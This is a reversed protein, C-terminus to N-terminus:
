ERMILTSRYDFIPPALNFMHIQRWLQALLWRGGAGSVDIVLKRMGPAGRPPVAGRRGKERRSDAGGVGGGEEKAEGDHPRAQVEDLAAAASRLVAWAIEFEEPDRSAKMPPPHSAASAAMTSDCSALEGSGAAPLSLAAPREQAESLAVRVAAAIRHLENFEGCHSLQLAFERLAAPAAGSATTKPPAAEGAGGRPATFPNALSLSDELVVDNSETAPAAGVGPEGAATSTLRALAFLSEGVALSWLLAVLETGEMAGVRRAASCWSGDTEQAPGIASRITELLLRIMQLCARQAEKGGLRLVRPSSLHALSSVLEVAVHENLVRRRLCVSSALTNQTFATQLTCLVEVASSYLPRFWRPSAPSLVYCMALVLLNGYTHVCLTDLGKGGDCSGERDDGAAIRISQPLMPMAARLVRMFQRVETATAGAALSPLPTALTELFSPQRLLILLCLLSLQGEGFRSASVGSSVLLSHLLAMFSHPRRALIDLALSSQQVAWLLLHLVLPACPIKVMAADGASATLPNELLTLMGEVLARAYCSPDLEDSRSQAPLLISSDQSTAKAGDVPVHPEADGLAAKLLSFFVNSAREEPPGQLQPDCCPLTPGSYVGMALIALAHGLVAVQTASFRSGRSFVATLRPTLLSKKAYFRVAYLLAACLLAALPQKEGNFLENSMLAITAERRQKSCSRKGAEAGAATAPAAEAASTYIPGSLLLLLTRLIIAHYDSGLSLAPAARSCSGGLLVSNSGGSDNQTNALRGQVGGPAAGRLLSLLLAPPVCGRRLLLQLEANVAAEAIARPDQRPQTERCPAAATMVGPMFLLKLLLQVLQTGPPPSLSPPCDEALVCADGRFFFHYAFDAAFPSETRNAVDMLERTRQSIIAINREGSAAADERLLATLEDIDELCYPLAGGILRLANAAACPDLPRGARRGGGGRPPPPPPRPQMYSLTGEVRVAAVDGDIPSGAADEAAAGCSLALFADLQQMCAALIAALRDPHYVRLLRVDEATWFSALQEDSLGTCFLTRWFIDLDGADGSLPHQKYHLLVVARRFAYVDSM